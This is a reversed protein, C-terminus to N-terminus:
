MIDMFDEEDLTSYPYRSNLEDDPRRSQLQRKKIFSYALSGAGVLMFMMALDSELSETGNNSLQPIKEKPVDMPTFRLLDYNIISMDPQVTTYTSLWDKYKGTILKINNTNSSLFNVHSVELTKWKQEAVIWEYQQVKVIRQIQRVLEDNSVGETKYDKAAQVDITMYNYTITDDTGSIRQFANLLKVSPPEMPPIFSVVSLSSGGVGRPKTPQVAIVMSSWADGISYAHMGSPQAFFHWMNIDCLETKLMYSRLLEPTANIAYEAPVRVEWVDDSTEEKGGIRVFTGVVVTSEDVPETTADGSSAKSKAMVPKVTKMDVIYKDHLLLPQMYPDNPLRTKTSLRDGRRITKDVHLVAGSLLMGLGARQMVTPLAESPYQDQNLFMADVIADVSGAAVGIASMSMPNSLLAKPGTTNAEMGPPSSTPTSYTGFLNLATIGGAGLLGVGISHKLHDTYSSTQMIARRAVVAGLVASSMGTALEGISPTTSNVGVELKNATVDAATADEFLLLLKEMAVLDADGSNPQGDGKALKCANVIGVIIVNRIFMIDMTSLGELEPLRGEHAETSASLALYLGTCVSHIANNVYVSADSEAEKGDKGAAAKRRADSEVINKRAEDVIRKVLPVVLASLGKVM